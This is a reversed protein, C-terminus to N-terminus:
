PAAPHVQDTPQALRLPEVPPHDTLGRGAEDRGAPVLRVDPSGPSDAPGVSGQGLLDPARQVAQEAPASGGDARWLVARTSRYRNLTRTGRNLHRSLSNLM